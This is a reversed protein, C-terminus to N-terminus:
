FDTRALWRDWVGADGLIDVGLDAATRRRTLALLLDTAPGRL